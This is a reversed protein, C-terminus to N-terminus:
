RPRAEIQVSEFTFRTSHPGQSLRISEPFVLNGLKQWTYEAARAPANKAQIELRTPAFHGPAVESYEYALRAAPMEMLSPLESRRDIHLTTTEDGANRGGLTVLVADGQIEAALVSAGKAVLSPDRLPLGEFAGRVLGDVANKMKEICARASPDKTDCDIVIETQVGGSGTDVVGHVVVHKLADVVLSAERDPKTALEREMEAIPAELADTKLEFRVFSGPRQWRYLHAEAKAIWAAGDESTRAFSTSSSAIIGVLAVAIACRTANSM